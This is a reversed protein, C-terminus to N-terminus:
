DGDADGEESFGQQQQQQQQQQPPAEGWSGPHGGGIAGVTQLGIGFGSGQRAGAAVAPSFSDLVLFVAAATLGIMAIEQLDAKRRPIYFAAVAVALGELLYKILNMIMIYTFSIKNSDGCLVVDKIHFLVCDIQMRSIM